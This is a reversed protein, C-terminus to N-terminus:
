KEVDIMNPFTFTMREDTFREDIYNDFTNQPTIGDIRENWRLVAAHSVVTDFIFFVILCRVSPTGIRNPIKEILISIPPYVIKVWILGLLGWMISHFINVRGNINFIVNSYDWSITGFIVEQIYSCFYEFVSCIILSSLFIWIGKANHVKYSFVTLLVAAIGYIAIFPGYVFGVRIHFGGHVLFAWVTEM